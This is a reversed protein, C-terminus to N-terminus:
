VGDTKPTESPKEAPESADLRAEMYRMLAQRVGAPDRLYLRIALASFERAAPDMILSGAAHDVDLWGNPLDFAAEIRRAILHGITKRKNHIHSVYRPPMGIKDAFRTLAGREPFEDREIERLRKRLELYNRYRIDLITNEM